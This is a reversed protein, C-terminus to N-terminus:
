KPQHTKNNTKVHCHIALTSQQESVRRDNEGTNVLELMITEILTGLSFCQFAPLYKQM